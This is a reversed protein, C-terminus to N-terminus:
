QDVNLDQPSIRGLEYPIPAGVGHGRHDMHIKGIGPRLFAVVLAAHNLISRKLLKMADEGRGTLNSKDGIM